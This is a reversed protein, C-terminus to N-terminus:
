DAPEPHHRSTASPSMMTVILSHSLCCMVAVLEVDAAAQCNFQRLLPVSLVVARLHQGSLQNVRRVRIVEEVIDRIEAGRDKV